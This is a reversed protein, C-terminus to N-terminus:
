LNYKEKYYEMRADEGNVDDSPIEGILPMNLIEQVEPALDQIPKLTFKKKKSESFKSIL